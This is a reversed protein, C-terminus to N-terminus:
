SFSDELNKKIMLQALQMRDSVGLKEFIHTLHYKVTREGISFQDAIEKNSCGAMISDVIQQQQPTLEQAVAVTSRDLKLSISQYRRVVEAVGKSSLWFEGSFVTRICKFLLESTEQKEVFGRAGYKLAELMESKDIRDILLIPSIKIQQESIEQLLDLVSRKRLNLDTLLIDPKHQAILRMVQNGDSTEAVVEFDSQSLLLPRLVECFMEQHDAILIRISMAAIM